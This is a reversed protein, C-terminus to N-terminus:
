HTDIFAMAPKYDGHGKLPTPIIAMDKSGMATTTM